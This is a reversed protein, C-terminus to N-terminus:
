DEIEAEDASDLMEQTIGLDELVDEEPIMDDSNFKAMRDAAMTLLLYDDITDMTKNCSETREKGKKRAEAIEANIEDLTMDSLGNEKASDGLELMAEYGKDAVYRPKSSSAM